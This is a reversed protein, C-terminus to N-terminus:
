RKIKEWFEEYSQYSRIKKYILKPKDDIEEERKHWIHVKGLLDKNEFLSQSKKLRWNSGTCIGELLRVYKGEEAVIRYCKNDSKKIEIFVEYNHAKDKLLNEGWAGMLIHELNYKEEM